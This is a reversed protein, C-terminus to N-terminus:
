QLSCKSPETRGQSIFESIICAIGSTILAGCLATRRGVKHLLLFVVFYAPIEILSILIFNTYKNGAINVSNLSLGYYVLTNTLWCFACNIMRILLTRHKFVEVIPYSKRTKEEETELIEALPRNDNYLNDFVSEQLQKGNVRAATRLIAEAEAKRGKALLWRVSEPLLWFYSICLLSPAYLIQLFTRWNHFYLAVIGMLVEGVAYFSQIVSGGIVRMKHGVLEM